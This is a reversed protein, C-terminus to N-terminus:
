VDNKGADDDQALGQNSEKALKSESHDETSPQVSFGRTPPEVGDWAVLKRARLESVPGSAKARQGRAPEIFALRAAGERLMKEDAIAYRRYIAETKHGVMAM